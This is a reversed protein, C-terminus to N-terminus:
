MVMKVVQIYRTGAERVQDQTTNKQYTIDIFRKEFTHERYVRLRRVDKPMMEPDPKRPMCDFTEENVYYM